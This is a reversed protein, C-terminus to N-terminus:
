KLVLKKFSKKGKKIVIGDGFDDKTYTKRVDTEKEGNVTVGGQEIARRGDSRTGVLGGAVLLTILDVTGDRFDDDSVEATPMNTSDGAGFVSRASERAKEAEEKGHVLGTLEYALIEKAENLKSGEWGEMAEIEELPLFTLMKLCKIVDADDVNRWYQFFEYPTTKEADLWVAGKQTKGMKKGESNLLLTITMASADKGLKRRILETGGLMNSWQDDGGFQLNCGYKQFLTYFDFSQMIMYNFELFTLGKEMRQKYCEATLMRNVSFHPGVERLLEVYNLGMLWDANNVLLAKGESFDIFRSMQKKFCEVNHDIIEPTMMSRMDNRGSPDGIMATGGGILAIPKNGAEQLRKMLCLAMFHGVHLSDATPDFGIYFTAKGANILDRILEEDTVQAILGRAQLEEYIGMLIRRETDYFSFLGIPRIVL